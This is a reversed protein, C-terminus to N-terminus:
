KRVVSTVPPVLSMPPASIHMGPSLMVMSTSKPSFGTAMSFPTRKATRSPPLVIPEPTTTSIMWYTPLLDATRRCYTPPDVSGSMFAVMGGPEFSGPPKKGAADRVCETLPRSRIPPIASRTGQPLTM